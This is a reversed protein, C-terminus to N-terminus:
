ASPPLLQEAQAVYRTAGAKRFFSLAPGLHDHAEAHRGARALEEAARLRTHADVSPAGIRAVQAIARPFNDRAIARAAELWPTPPASELVSVLEAERDLDRLLWAFDILTPVPM